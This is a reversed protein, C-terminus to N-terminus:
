ISCEGFEVVLWSVTVFLAGQFFNQLNNGVHHNIKSYLKVFKQSCALIEMPNAIIALCNFLKLRYTLESPYLICGSIVCSGTLPLSNITVRSSLGWLPITMSPCNLRPQIPRRVRSCSSKTSNSTFFRPFM